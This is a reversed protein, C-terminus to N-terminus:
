AKEQSIQTLFKFIEDWKNPFVVMAVGGAKSISVLKHEQLKSVKGKESKLELAVFLGAICLILDPDGAITKQQIPFVVTSPLTKLDRMVRKRFVTEPKQSM